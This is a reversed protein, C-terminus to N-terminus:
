NISERKIPEYNEDIIVQGNVIRGIPIELGVNNYLYGLLRTETEPAKITGDKMLEYEGPCAFNNDRKWVPFEVKKGITHGDKDYIYDGFLQYFIGKKEDIIFNDLCKTKDM